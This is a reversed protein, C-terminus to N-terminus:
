FDSFLSQFAEILKSSIEVHSNVINLLSNTGTEGQEKFCTFINWNLEREREWLELKESFSNTDLIM